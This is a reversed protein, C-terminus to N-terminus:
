RVLKGANGVECGHIDLVFSGFCVVIEGRTGDNSYCYASCNTTPQQIRLKDSAYFDQDDQTLWTWPWNKLKKLTKILVVTAQRQVLIM